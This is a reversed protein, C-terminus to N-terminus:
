RKREKRFCPKCRLYYNRREDFGLCTKWQRAPRGLALLACAGSERIMLPCTLSCHRADIVVIPVEDIVRKQTM